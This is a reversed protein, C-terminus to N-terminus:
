RTFTVKSLGEPSDPNLGNKRAFELAFAQLIVSDVVSAFIENECKAGPIVVENPLALEGTGFWFISPSQARIKELDAKLSELPIGNPAMLFVQTKNTLASIPGHMYDAISLGQVSIKSTEQIKLAAERANPYSFGRGLVVIENARDCKAVANSLASNNALLESAAAVVSKYNTLKSSWASVLMLSALLQAAYSKTAAVALETGAMLSLHHDALKALPSKEDNTISILKAGASKAATAYEVLDTSQGSQSIAVVLTSDFNLKAHYITVSSPSTLGVPLGLQTEILYKLFHAANDSTGRALVLVSQIKNSSLLDSLATFQSQNALLKTFVEPIESIESEMINGIENVAYKRM